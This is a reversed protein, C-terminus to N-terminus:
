GLHSIGSIEVVGISGNYNAVTAKLTMERLMALCTILVGEKVTGVPNFKIQLDGLVAMNDSEMIGTEFLGGINLAVGPLPAVSLTGEIEWVRVVSKGIIVKDVVESQSFEFGESKFLTHFITGM